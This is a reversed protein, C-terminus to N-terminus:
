LIFVINNIFITFCVLKEKTTEVPMGEIVFIRRKLLENIRQEIAPMMYDRHENNAM